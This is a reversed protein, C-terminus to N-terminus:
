DAITYTHIQKRFEEDNLYKHMTREVLKQLTFKRKVCEVKFDEFNQEEVKVSTLVLKRKNM